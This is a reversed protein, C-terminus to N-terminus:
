TLHTLKLRENWEFLRVLGILLVAISAILAASLVGSPITQDAVLVAADGFGAAMILLFALAILRFLQEMIDGKFLRLLKTAYVSGAAGLLGFAIAISVDLFSVM